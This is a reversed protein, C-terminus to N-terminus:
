FFFFPIGFYLKLSKGIEVIIKKSNISRVKLKSPTQDGERNLGNLTM